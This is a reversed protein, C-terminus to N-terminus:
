AQNDRDPEDKLKRKELVLDKLALMCKDCVPKNIGDIPEECFHCTTGLENKIKFSNISKYIMDNIIEKESNELTLDNISKLKAYSKGNIQRKTFNIKKGNLDRATGVLTDADNSDSPDLEIELEKTYAYDIYKVIWKADVKHLIGLM